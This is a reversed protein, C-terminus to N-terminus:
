LYGPGTDKPIAAWLILYVVLMIGFTMVALMVFLFRVATADLNFYEAIGACVGGIDHNASSRRLRKGATSFRGKRAAYIIIGGSIVAAIPWAVDATTELVSALDPWWPSLMREALKWLGFTILVIGVILWSDRGSFKKHAM